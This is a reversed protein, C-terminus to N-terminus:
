YLCTRVPRRRNMNSIDLDAKAAVVVRSILMGEMTIPALLLGDILRTIPGDVAVSSARPVNASGSPRVQPRCYTYECSAVYELSVAKMCVMSSCEHLSRGLNQDVSSSLKTWCTGTRCALRLPGSSSASTTGRHLLWLSLAEVCCPRLPMHRMGIMMTWRFADQMFCSVRPSERCIRPCSNVSLVCHKQCENKLWM